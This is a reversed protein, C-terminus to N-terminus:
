SIKPAFLVDTFLKTVHALHLGEELNKTENCYAQWYNKHASRPSIPFIFSSALEPAGRHEAYPCEAYHCEAYHCEAYRCEAYHCV